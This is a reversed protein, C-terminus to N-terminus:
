LYTSYVHAYIHGICMDISKHFSWYLCTYLNTQMPLVGATAQSLPASFSFWDVSPVSGKSYEASCDESDTEAVGGGGRVFM